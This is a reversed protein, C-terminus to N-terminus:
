TSLPAGCSIWLATIALLDMDFDGSLYPASEHCLFFVRWEIERRIKCLGPASGGLVISLFGRDERLATGGVRDKVNLIALHLQRDEGIAPLFRDDCDQPTSIEETFSTERSLRKAHGRRGRYRVAGEKSKFFFCHDPHEV